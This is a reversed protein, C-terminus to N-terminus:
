VDAKGAASVAKAKDLVPSPDFYVYFDVIKVEENVHALQMVSMAPIIVATKEKDGKIVYTVTSATHSISKELDIDVILGLGNPPM